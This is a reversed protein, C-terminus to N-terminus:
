SARFRRWRHISIRRYRWLWEGAGSVMGVAFFLRGVGRRPDRPIARIGRVLRSKIDGAFARLMYRDHVRFHKARFAGQGRGYRWRLPLFDMGSRWARHYVVANPVYRVVYGHERLRFELDHDEGGPFPTGPGLRPDFGGIAVLTARYAAFNMPHLLDAGRRGSAIVEQERANLSPAFAGPLEARGALVAGTVVTAPGSQMLSHVMNGLWTAEPLIDDHTFVLLPHHSARIGANMGRSLGSSNQPLYRIVCKPPSVLELLKRNPTRSQDIVVLEDPLSIGSLIVSVVRELMRPRDRSCVILSTPLPLHEAHEAAAQPSGATM